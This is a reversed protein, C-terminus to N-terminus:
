KNNSYAPAMHDTDCIVHGMDCLHQIGPIFAVTLAIALM